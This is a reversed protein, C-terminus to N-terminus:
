YKGFEDKIIIQRESEDFIEQLLMRASLWETRRTGKIREIESLEGETLELNQLFYEDSENIHWIALTSHDSIKRKNFLPM